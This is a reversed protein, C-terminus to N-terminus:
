LLISVLVAGALTTLITVEKAGNKVKSKGKSSGSSAKTSNSSKEKTGNRSETKSEDSQLRTTGKSGPTAGREVNVGENGSIVTSAGGAGLIAASAEPSAMGVVQGGELPMGGVATGHAFAQTPPAASTVPQSYEQYIPPTNITTAAVVEYGQSAPQVYEITSPNSYFGGSAGTPSSEGVPATVPPSWASTYADKHSYSIQNDGTKSILVEENPTNLELLLPEGSFLYYVGSDSKRTSSGGCLSCKWFIFPVL